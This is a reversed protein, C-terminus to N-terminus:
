SEFVNVNRQPFTRRPKKLLHLLLSLPLHPYCVIPKLCFCTSSLLVSIMFLFREGVKSDNCISIRQRESTQKWVHEHNGQCQLGMYEQSRPDSTLFQRHYRESLNNEKKKQSSVLIARQRLYNEVVVERSLESNVLSSLRGVLVSQLGTGLFAVVM